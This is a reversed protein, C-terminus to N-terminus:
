KLPVLKTIISYETINSPFGLDTAVGIWLADDGFSAKTIIYSQNFNDKTLVDISYVEKENDATTIQLQTENSLFKWKAKEIIGKINNEVTGDVKFTMTTKAFDSNLGIAPNATKSMVVKTVSEGKYAAENYQWPNATLIETKTLPKAEVRETQLPTIREDCSQLIAVFVILTLISLHKM